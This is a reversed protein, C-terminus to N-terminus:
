VDTEVYGDLADLARLITTNESAEEESLIKYTRTLRDLLRSVLYISKQNTSNAMFVLAEDELEELTKEYPETKM